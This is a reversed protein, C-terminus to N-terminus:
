DFHPGAFVVCTEPADGPCRVTILLTQAGALEFEIGQAAAGVDLEKPPRTDISLVLSAAPEARGGEARVQAAFRRARKDLRYAIRVSGLARPWVLVRDTGEASAQQLSSWAAFPVPPPPDVLEFDRADIPARREPGLSEGRIAALILPLAARQGEPTLHNRGFGRTGFYRGRDSGSRLADEVFLPQILAHRAGAERLAELAAGVRWPAAGNRWVSPSGEFLLFAHPVGASELEAHMAALVRRTMARAAALWDPDQDPQGVGWSKPLLSSRSVAAWAYSPISPEHSALYDELSVLPGARQELAEGGDRFRPKSWGRFELMARDVSDDLCLGILVIPRQERWRPLVERMLLLVQDLGYGGTGYNLLMHTAGLESEDLLAQFRQERPGVGAAYSDGFLLVPRRGALREEDVHRWGERRYDGSIWGLAPDFRGKPMPGPENSWRQSLIWYDETAADTFRV